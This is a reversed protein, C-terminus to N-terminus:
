AALRTVMTAILLAPLAILYLLPAFATAVTLLLAASGVHRWGDYGPDARVLRAGAALLLPVCIFAVADGLRGSAVVGTAVPLLAYTVAAWVRLLPTRIVRGAAAYATLGALPVCGLMIVDVALWAKGFLVTAFLALIA